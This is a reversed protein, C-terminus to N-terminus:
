RKTLDKKKGNEDLMSLFVGHRFALYGLFDSILLNQVKAAIPM